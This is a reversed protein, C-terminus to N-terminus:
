KEGEISEDFYSDMFEDIKKKKSKRKRTQTDGIKSYHRWGGFDGGISQSAGDLAATTTAADSEEVDLPNKPSKNEAEKEARLKIDSIKLDINQLKEQLEAVSEQERVITERKKNIQDQLQLKKGVLNAVLKNTKESDM